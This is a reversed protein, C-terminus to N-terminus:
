SVPTLRVVTVSASPCRPKGRQQGARSLTLACIRPKAGSVTFSSVIVIPRVSFCSKVRLSSLRVSAIVTVACGRLDVSGLGVDGVNDGGRLDLRKGNLGAM